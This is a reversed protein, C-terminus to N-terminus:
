PRRTVQLQLDARDGRHWSESYEIVRGDADREVSSVHLLASGVPVQLVAGLQEDAVVARVSRAGSQIRVGSAGELFRYLSSHEFDFRKLRELLHPDLDKPLYSHMFAILQDDVYRLRELKVCDTGPAVGLNKAVEDHSSELQCRVVLNRVSHGAAELDDFFGLTGSLFQENLKRGSVFTGKGRLRYLRGESTLEGLAQRVVTRSVGYQTCLDAETPLLDGSKWHGEAIEDELVRKLQAYYPLKSNRDIRGQQVSTPM